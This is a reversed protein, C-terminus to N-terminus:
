NLRAIARGLAQQEPPKPLAALVHLQHFQAMLAASGLIADPQGSLLIVGGDYRREALGALLQFGDAGPMVLDLVIVDPRRVAQDVAAIARRGDSATAISTIGLDQLQSSVFERMFSDDDVVLVRLAPYANPNM